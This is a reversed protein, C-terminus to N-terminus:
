IRARQQWKLEINRALEYARERIKQRLTFERRDLKRKEEIQDFFLIARNCCELQPDMNAFRMKHWEAM